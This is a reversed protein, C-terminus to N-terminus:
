WTDYCNGKVVIFCGGYVVYFGLVSPLFHRLIFDYSIFPEGNFELSRKRCTYIFKINWNTALFTLKGNLYFSIYNRIM